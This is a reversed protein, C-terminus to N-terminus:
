HPANAITVVSLILIMVLAGWMLAHWDQASM